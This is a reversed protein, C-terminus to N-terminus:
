FPNSQRLRTASEGPDTLLKQIGEVPGDLVAQWEKLTSSARPSCTKLWRAITGKAREIWEPHDVLRLSIQRGFAMSRQDILRHGRMPTSVTHRNKKPSLVGISEWERTRRM